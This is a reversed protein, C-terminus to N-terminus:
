SSPRLGDSSWESGSTKNLLSEARLTKNVKDMKDGPSGLSDSKEGPPGQDRHVPIM